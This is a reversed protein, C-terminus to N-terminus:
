RRLLYDTEINVLSTPKLLHLNTDNYTQPIIALKFTKLTKDQITLSVGNIAISGKNIVFSEIDKPYAIELAITNNIKRTHKVIGIADIHGQVIHGGLRDSISLARELNATHGIKMKNLTTNNWTQKLAQVFMKNNQIKTVTLCIGDISISDGIKTEQIVKNAHFALEIFNQKTHKQLLKGTEEILGTFM